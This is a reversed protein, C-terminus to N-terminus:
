GDLTEMPCSLNYIFRSAYTLIKGQWGWEIGPAIVLTLSKERELDTCQCTSICSVMLACMRGPRFIGSVKHLLTLKANDTSSTVEYGVNHLSLAVTKFAIVEKESSSDADTSADGTEPEPAAGDSHKSFGLSVASLVCCLLWYLIMYLFSSRIWVNGFTNGESITFGADILIGDPDDWRKSRFENVILARYTWACPNWWYLWYYYRPIADPPIIFGGFLMMALLTCSSLVQVQAGSAFSAFLALQANMLLAFTVLISLYVFFNSADSRDALGVM